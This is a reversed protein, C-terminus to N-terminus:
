SAFVLDISVLIYSLLILGPILSLFQVFREPRFYSSCVTYRIQFYEMLVPWLDYSM